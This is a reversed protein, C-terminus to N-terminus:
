VQNRLNDTQTARLSNTETLRLNLQLTSSHLLSDYVPYSPFSILCDRGAICEYAKQIDLYDRETVLFALESTLTEELLTLVLLRELSSDRVYGLNTLSSIYKSLSEFTINTLDDM